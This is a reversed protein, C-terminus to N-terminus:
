ELKNGYALDGADGLGPVIFSKSTLEEDVACVWVTIDEGGLTKQIHELGSESAIACVLHVHKPAGKGLLHRYAMVMSAGTATVTDAMILVKGEISPSSASEVMMKLTNDKSYKRYISVFANQSKDFFNLLGQHFPLGARLITGLVILDDPTNVEAIGLPTEVNKTSYELTRSIEYACIEGIRELNRRFRLPDKQVSRDRIEAIFSNLLTNEKGLNIIKM